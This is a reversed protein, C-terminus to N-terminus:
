SEISSGLSSTALVDDELKNSGDFDRLWKYNFIHSDIPRRGKFLSQTFVNQTAIRLVNESMHTATANANVSHSLAPTVPRSNPKSSCECIGPDKLSIGSKLRWNWYSYSLNYRCGAHCQAKIATNQILIARFPPWPSLPPHPYSKINTKTIYLLRLKDQRHILQNGNNNLTIYVKNYLNLHDIFLQALQIQVAAKPSTLLLNNLLLIIKLLLRTIALGLQLSRLNPRHIAMIKIFIDQVNGKNILPIIENTIPHLQKSAINYDVSPEQFIRYLTSPITYPIYSFAIYHPLHEKDILSKLDKSGLAYGLPLSPM